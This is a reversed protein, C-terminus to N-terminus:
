RGRRRPTLPFASLFVDAVREPHGIEDFRAAAAAGLRRRREPDAALAALAAALAGADGSPVLLGEVGDTMVERIGPTDATVVPRGACMAQYVKNPVVRGAKDSTGFVGLCIAAATVEAGLHEYPVWRVHTVHEGAGRALEGDLWAGLQGEGVLRIPPVGPAGAAAIITPLGHLPALKGYFLAHVPGAPPTSRPFREPEAGVPVVAIRQRPVGFRESMWDANARTDALVLDAVRLALRDLGALSAGAIRGARGRDGALTDAFSIMADVVLPARLRRALLTGPLADPQAPYGLVVADVPGLRQARARLRWWAALWGLGARALELSGLFGGAKHRTREWVPEHLEIVDVGRARLGAILVRNRPYDREYTGIWAIRTPAGGSM